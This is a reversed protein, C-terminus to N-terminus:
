LGAALNIATTSKAVGGKQNAISIIMDDSQAECIGISHTEISFLPRYKTRKCAPPPIAQAGNSRCIQDISREQQRQQDYQTSIQYQIKRNLCVLLGKDVSLFSVYIFIKAEFPQFPIYNICGSM